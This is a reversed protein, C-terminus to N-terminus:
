GGNRIRLLAAPQAVSQLSVLRAADRGKISVLPALGRALIRDAARDSLWAEACPKVQTEGEEKFSFVPLGDIEGCGPSELDWGNALFTEAFLHACLFAPNGWLYDEHARPDPLEEFPFSEIPESKAGYPPRLLVRPLVLGVSAAEPLRRVSEWAQELEPSAARTWDDPDPHIGFSDCGVWAPNGAAVFPAGAAAALKALRALLDIDELSRAFEYNGVWLAWPTQGAPPLAFHSFGTAGLNEQSRLDAALEDKSVDVLFIKLTDTAELNRVLRDLSRWASELAQFHPHHLVSRLQAALELDLAGVSATQRPTPSPVVSSSVISRLLQNIDPRSPSPEPPHAPPPEGGLLRELTDQDSEGGPQPGTPAAMPGGVLPPPESAAARSTAPDLLRQRWGGAQAWSAVQRLLADPHFDELRNFRLELMESSAHPHPLSLKVGLSAFAEDFNDCDVLRPRRSGIPETLKRNSRGSFDGLVALAFPSEPDRPARRSGPNPAFHFEIREFQKPSSM